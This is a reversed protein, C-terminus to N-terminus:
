KGGGSDPGRSSITTQAVLSRSFFSFWGAFSSFTYVTSRATIVKNIVEDGQGLRHIRAVIVQIMSTKMM